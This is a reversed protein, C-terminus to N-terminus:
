HHLVEVVVPMYAHGAGCLESCYGTFVGVREPIFFLQNVRGPIADVKLGLTPLAFSHIVDFSTVFFRYARGLYLRLPKDVILGDKCSISDFEQSGIGYSWYWQHGVVGVCEDALGDLGDSIYNINLIALVLVVSTPIITWCLEVVQNDGGFSIVGVGLIDWALALLVLISILICLAVVYCVVDYYILSINM